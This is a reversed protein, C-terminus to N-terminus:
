LNPSPVICIINKLRESVDNLPSTNANNVEGFNVNNEITNSGPRDDNIIHLM